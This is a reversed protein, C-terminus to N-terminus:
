FAKLNTTNATIDVWQFQDELGRNKLIALTNRCDICITSGYLTIM